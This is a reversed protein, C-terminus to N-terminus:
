MYGVNDEFDGHLEPQGQVAGGAEVQLIRLNCSNLM